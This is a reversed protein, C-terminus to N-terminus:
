TTPTLAAPKSHPSLRLAAGSKWTGWRGCLPTARYVRLRGFPRRVGCRHLVSKSQSPRRRHAGDFQQVGRVRVVNFDSATYGDGPTARPEAASVM